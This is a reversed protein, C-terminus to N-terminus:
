SRVKKQRYETPSFGTYKKFISSFYTADNYGTLNAIEYTLLDTQLLYEKAREIRAKNVYETISEGYMKKFTRSLHSPSIHLHEAIAELSLLSSLHDNIYKITNEILKNQVTTAGAFQEKTYDMLKQITDELTFIDSATNISSLYGSPPLPAEKKALVRYCIYYIQSCINKAEMSHVFNSKLKSFITHLTAEAEDFAWSNLHNEFHFLDLSNEATLDYESTKGCDTFLAINKESYFNLTLAHIAESVASQFEAAGKHCSSIGITIQRSDLTQTITTIESCNELIKEPVRVAPKQLFYITIILNNYRYCYANKKEDIIIKKLSALDSGLPVLQFAVAFYYNLTIELKQLRQEFSSNYTSITMEQLLQDKLFALEEKTISAYTKSTIIQEQADQVADLLTKKNTPKLIFSSVNYKIATKAYEFDAYGTLLIVKIEPCNEHVFQAIDLGDAAPMKIDTIIINVPNNKIFNIAILGNEATGVIECDISEWNIFHSIGKRMLAEDDVILIKFTM